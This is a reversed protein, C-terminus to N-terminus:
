DVVLWRAGRESPGTAVHKAAALDATSVIKGIIAAAPYGASVLAALCAPAKDAAITALLGGSTQPDFLISPGTGDTTPIAEAYRANSGYSASTVGGRLVEAVGALVPLARADLRAALGASKLVANLTGALGYCGVHVMGSPAHAALIAGAADNSSLMTAVAGDIWSAKAVGEKAAALLVGIGLAKTLIMVHGVALPTSPRATEATVANVALAVTGDSAGGLYGGNLTAKSEHLAGSIGSLVQFLRREVITEGAPSVNVIAMASHPKAGQAVVNNLAHLTAIRGLVFPDTIVDDVADVTQVFAKEMPQLLSAGGRWAGDRPARAVRAVVREVVDGAIARRSDVATAHDPPPVAPLRAFMAMFDRDIRDKLRWLWRGGAAVNGRAGYARGDGTGILSLYGRQPVFPVLPRGACLRRWNQTLPAGQRVAFVGAKPRPETTMTAVDGTAFVDPHGVVQLTPDIRIFGSDCLPLTSAALWSPPSPTTVWFIEDHEVTSGSALVVRHREVGLVAEALRVKIAQRELEKSLLLRLWKGQGALLVRDKSILTIAVHGGLRARMCLALEVGGAGGGVVTVRRPAASARRTLIEDWAALLRPVPKAPVAFEAVGPVGDAVPVSGVNISLLDYSLPPRGALIVEKSGVNIGEVRACIFLAGAAQALRRLDIHMEDRAYQGAVYGPLMGSYPAESVDSVLTVTLGPIPTLAILRLAIAHSHGGGVMVLDRREIPVLPTLM